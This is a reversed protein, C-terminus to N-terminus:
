RGAAAVRRKKQYAILHATLWPRGAYMAFQAGVAIHGGCCECKMNWRAKM